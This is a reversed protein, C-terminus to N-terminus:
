LQARQSTTAEGPARGRTRLDAGDIREVDPHEEVTVSQQLGGVNLTLNVIAQQGVVLGIGTKVESTFGPKELATLEYGGITLSPTNYRGGGDTVLKRTAGTEANKVTVSVGAIPAGTADNIIGSISGEAQAWILGTFLLAAGLALCTRM